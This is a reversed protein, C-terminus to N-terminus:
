GIIQQAIDQIKEQVIEMYKIKTCYIESFPLLYQHHVDEM